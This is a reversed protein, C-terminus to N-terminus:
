SDMLDQVRKLFVAHLAEDKSTYIVDDVDRPPTGKVGTTAIIKYETSAGRRLNLKVEGSVWSAKQALAEAGVM